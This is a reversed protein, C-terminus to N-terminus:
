SSGPRFQRLWAIMEEVGDDTELDREAMWAQLEESSVLGETLAFLLMVLFRVGAFRL